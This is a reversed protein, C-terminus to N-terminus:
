IQALFLKKQFSYYLSIFIYSEDCIIVWSTEGTSNIRFLEKPVLLTKETVQKRTLYRLGLNLPVFEKLLCEGGRSMNSELTRRSIIFLSFIGENSEGMRLKILYIAMSRKRVIV